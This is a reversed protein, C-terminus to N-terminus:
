KLLKSKRLLHVMAKEVDSYSAEKINVRAIFVLDYGKAAAPGVSRFSEKMLRKVRNRVVSNGVKKSVSFGVRNFDEGNKMMFLVLQRNAMSNGKDYVKKFEINKKLRLMQEM